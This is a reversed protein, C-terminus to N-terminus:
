EILDSSSTFLIFEQCCNPLTNKKLCVPFCNMWLPLEGLKSYMLEDGLLLGVFCIHRVSM